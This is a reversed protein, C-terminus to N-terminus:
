TLVDSAEEDVQDLAAIATALLQALESSSELDLLGSLARIAPALGLQNRLVRFSVELDTVVTWREAVADDTLTRSM